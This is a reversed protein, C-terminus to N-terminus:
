ARACSKPVQDSPTPEAVPELTLETDAFPESADHLTRTRELPDSPQEFQKKVYAESPRGETWRPKPFVATVRLDPSVASSTPTAVLEYRMIVWRERGSVVDHLWSDDDVRWLGYLDNDGEFTLFEPLRRQSLTISAPIAFLQARFRLLQYRRRPVLFDLARTASVDEDLRKGDGVFKGAALVTAPRKEWVDAMFRTRQPDLLAGQFFSAIRAPTARRQCRLVRSGTLTYTSGIVTVSRGVDKYSVTARVVDHDTQRGVRELAVQLEVARGAQSPVYQNQFWFEWAGVVTGILGLAVAGLRTLTVRADRGLYVLGGIGVGILVLAAVVVLGEQPTPTRITSLLVYVGVLATAVFAVLVIPRCPPRRGYPWTDRRALRVLDIAAVVLVVAFAILVAASITVGLSSRSIAADHVGIVLAAAAVISLFAALGFIPLVFRPAPRPPAL